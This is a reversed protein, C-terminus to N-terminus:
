YNKYLRWGKVVATFSASSSSNVLGPSFVFNVPDITLKNSSEVPVDFQFQQQQKQSLGMLPYYTYIDFNNKATKFTLSSGPPLDADAFFVIELTAKSAKGPVLSDMTLHNVNRNNKNFRYDKESVPANMYVCEGNGVDRFRMIEGNFVAIFWLMESKQTYDKPMILQSGTPTGILSAGSGDSKAIVYVDLGKNFSRGMSRDVGGAGVKGVELRLQSLLPLNTLGQNGQMIVSPALGFGKLRLTFKDYRDFVLGRQTFANANIVTVQDGKGNGTKKGPGLSDIVAKQEEKSIGVPAPSQSKTCASFVLLTALALVIKNM